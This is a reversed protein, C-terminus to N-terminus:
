VGTNDVDSDVSIQAGQIDTSYEDVLDWHGGRKSVELAIQVFCKPKSKGYARVVFFKDNVRIIFKTTINETLQSEIRPENYLNKLLKVNHVDRYQKSSILRFVTEQSIKNKNYLLWEVSKRIGIKLKKQKLLKSKIHAIDCVNVKYATAIEEETKGEEFLDILLKISLNKM